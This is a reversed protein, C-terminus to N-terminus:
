ITVRDLLYVKWESEYVFVDIGDVKWGSNELMQAYYNLQLAYKSLKNAPLKEYPKKLKNKPSIEESEVNVKYDQVRCGSKIDTVLAETVVEGAFTHVKDFGLVIDRLIPHKPLSKDGMKKNKEWYELAKHVLTGMEMAITSNDNWMDLIEKAPFGWSKECQKAVMEGNFEGTFQKIFTTAGQLKIGKHTYTHSKPDFEVVVKENFSELSVTESCVKSISNEKLVVESHKAFLEKVHGMAVANAEDLTAGEIEISPQVNAYSGVPITATLKYSKINM